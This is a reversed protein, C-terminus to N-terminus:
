CRFFSVRSPSLSLSEVRKNTQEDYPAEKNAKNDAKRQSVNSYGLYSRFLSSYSDAREAKEKGV